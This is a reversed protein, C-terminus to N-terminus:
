WDGDRLAAISNHYNPSSTVQPIQSTFDNHDVLGAGADNRITSGQDCDWYFRNHDVRIPRGKVTPNTSVPHMAVVPDPKNAGSVCMRFTMNTLRVNGRANATLNVVTGGGPGGRWTIVTNDSSPAGASPHSPATGAGSITIAKGGNTVTEGWDCNGAAVMVTDGDVVSAFNVATILDTTTCSTAPTTTSPKAGSKVYWTAAHANAPVLLLLLLFLRTM